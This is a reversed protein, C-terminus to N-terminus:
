IKKNVLKGVFPEALSPLPEEDNDEEPRHREGYASQQGGGHGDHDTITSSLETEDTKQVQKAEERLSQEAAEKAIAQAMEPRVAVDHALKATPGMDQVYVLPLIPDIPM